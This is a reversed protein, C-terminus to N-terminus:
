AATPGEGKRASLAYGVGRRNAIPDHAGAAQLKRRLRCAHADVTRTPADPEYGWLEALLERKSFVHGPAEALQALLNFELRSLGLETGAYAARRTSTDLQLAGVRRIVPVRSGAARTLVARVRARLELYSAPKALYDDAGAEFCRLLGLQGVEGSLAIVAVDRNAAAFPEDGTRLQRLVRTTSGPGDFDGLVVLNPQHNVLCLAFARVASAGVATYGDAALEAVLTHCLQSSRDAVLIAQPM